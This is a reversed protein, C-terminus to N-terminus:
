DAPSGKRKRLRYRPHRQPTEEFGEADIVLKKTERNWITIRPAIGKQEAPEEAKPAEVAQAKGEEAEPTSKQEETPQIQPRSPTLVKGGQM